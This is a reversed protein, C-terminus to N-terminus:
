PRASTHCRLLTDDTVYFTDTPSRSVHDQPTLLDDFNQKATVIPPLADFLQFPPMGREGSVFYDHIVTKILQLPHDQRHLLRAGVKSKVSSPVNNRPHPTNLAAM